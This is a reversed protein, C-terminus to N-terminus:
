TENTTAKHEEIADITRKLLSYISNLNSHLYEQNIEPYTKKVEGEHVIQNRIENFEKVNAWVDKVCGLDNRNIDSVIKDFLYEVSTKKTKVQKVEEKLSYEAYSWLVVVMAHYFYCPIKELLEAYYTRSDNRAIDNAISTQFNDIICEGSEINPCCHSETYTDGNGIVEADKRIQEELKHIEDNIFSPIDEIMREFVLKQFYIKYQDNSMGKVFM